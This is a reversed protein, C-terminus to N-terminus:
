PHYGRYVTPEYMRLKYHPQLYSVVDILEQVSMLHNYNRMRSKEGEAVKDLPYGPALRHSPNIVSTVLDAYTKVRGVEGGLVVAIDGDGALQEVDPTSHCSNCQMAIFTSKGVEADGEPLSFGRPSEKGASCAGLFFTGSCLIILLAIKNM